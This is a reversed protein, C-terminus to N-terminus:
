APGEAALRRELKRRYYWVGLSVLISAVILYYLSKGLIQVTAGSSFTTTGIILVFAALIIGTAVRMILHCRKVIAEVAGNEASRESM